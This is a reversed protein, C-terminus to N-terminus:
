VSEQDPQENYRDGADGPDLGFLIGSTTPISEQGPPGPVLVMLLELSGVGTGTGGGGPLDSPIESDRGM